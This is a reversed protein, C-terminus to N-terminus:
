RRGSEAPWSTSGACAPIIGHTICVRLGHLQAGRAHPSSGLGLPRGCIMAMHEGRMRPHDKSRPLFGSAAKTSGACAPIIGLHSRGDLGDRLAGRAHPSSGATTSSQRTAPRHEGRMRPHDRSLRCPTTQRSTSGACAPIIGPRRGAGEAAGLAGRAHPSSGRSRCCSNWGSSHEGRMRPHDRVDVGRVLREPTSGACAPIIGETVNTTGSPVLAGRAHPSSGTGYEYSTVAEVHEGRM